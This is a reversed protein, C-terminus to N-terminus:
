NFKSIGCYITVCPQHCEDSLFLVFYIEWVVEFKYMVGNSLILSRVECEV